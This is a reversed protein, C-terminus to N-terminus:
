GKYASTAGRALVTLEGFRGLASITAQTLGDTLVDQATDGTANEFPLVAVTPGRSVIASPPSTAPRSGTGRTLMWTGFAILLAMGLAAPVVARPSRHWAAAPASAAVPLEVEPSPEPLVMMYGRRPVTRILDRGAEGLARRIESICQTLSDETVTLS